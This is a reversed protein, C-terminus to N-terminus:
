KEFLQYRVDPPFQIALQSLKLKSQLRIHASFYRQSISCLLYLAHDAQRATRAFFRRRWGPLPETAEDVIPM